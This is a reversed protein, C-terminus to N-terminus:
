GADDVDIPTFESFVEAAEAISRLPVYTCVDAFQEWLREVSPDSHAEDM